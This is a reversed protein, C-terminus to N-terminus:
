ASWKINTRQLVKTRIAKPLKKDKNEKAFYGMVAYHPQQIRVDGGQLHWKHHLCEKKWSDKTSNFSVLTMTKTASDVSTIKGMFIYPTPGSSAEALGVCFAGVKCEKFDEEFRETMAPPQRKGEEDASEKGMDEEPEEDVWGGDRGNLEHNAVECDKAKEDTYRMKPLVRNKMVAADTSFHFHNTTANLHSGKPCEPLTWLSTHTPPLSTDWYDEILRMDGQKGEIAGVKCMRGWEPVPAVDELYREIPISGSAAANYNWDVCASLGQNRLTERMNVGKL